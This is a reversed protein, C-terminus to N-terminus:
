AGRSRFAWLSSLAFNAAAVGALVVVLAIDYRWGAWHLLAAYALENGAFSLASVALFRRASQLWPADRGRFSLRHHGFFSFVFACAWGLGNALLPAMGLGGVLLRVVGWHLGAAALGVLLYWGVRQLM